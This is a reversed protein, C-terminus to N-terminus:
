DRMHTAAAFDGGGFNACFFVVFAIVVASFCGEIFLDHVFATFEQYRRYRGLIVGISHLSFHSIALQNSPVSSLFMDVQEAHDQELLRELWINTDVLYM